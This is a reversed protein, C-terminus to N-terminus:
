LKEREKQRDRKKKERKEQKGDIGRARYAYM